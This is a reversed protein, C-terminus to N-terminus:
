FRILIPNFRVERRCLAQLLLTAELMQREERHRRPSAKLQQLM